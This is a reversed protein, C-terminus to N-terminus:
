ERGREILGDVIDKVRRAAEERGTARLSATRGEEKM